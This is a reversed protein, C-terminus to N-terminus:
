QKQFRRVLMEHHCIIQVFYVGSPLSSVDSQLYEGNKIGTFSINQEQGFSNFVHVASFQEDKNQTIYLLNRAPNPFIEISLDSKSIGTIVNPLGLSDCVTGGKAMLYYNPFNPMTFAEFATTSIAHQQVNCTSDLSDPFNIVTLALVSNSSNIYIKGDPALAALYFNYVNGFHDEYGDYHAVSIMSAPIDASLLDFQYIYNMSSIYLFRGTSSFAAGACGANDNISVHVLNSFAGTCRDFDWIDLDGVPEYYVYKTGDQSFLTQGFTCDRWTQLNQQWPGQIGNPTILYKYIIGSHNKRSFLWWDRGNAHKCATLRGEVLSDQLLVTNKQMVGGKGNDLAMDIVSYYLYLSCYTNFRDDVTEHFLYYKSSDDPFPIVLNGQPVTLGDHAHSSTFNSPSLGSGNLMTDDLANAIYAGNSYFLLNGNRDCIEGNTECFNMNRQVSNLVLTGSNFDLNIGMFYPPHCCDYGMLWLKDEGQSFGFAPFIIILLLGAIRSMREFTAFTLSLVLM